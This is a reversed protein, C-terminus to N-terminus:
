YMTNGSLRNKPTITTNVASRIRSLDTGNIEDYLQTEEYLARLANNRQATTYNPNGKIDAYTQLYMNYADNSNSKNQTSLKEREWALQANALERQQALSANRYAQEALMQERQMALSSNRYSQNAREIEQQFEFGKNKFDKEWQRDELQRALASIADERDASMTALTGELNQALLAKQQEIDNLASTRERNINGIMRNNIQDAEALGSVAISSNSLGRGLMTNSLSNKAKKNALNQNAVSLDYNANIGGKQQDLTQQNQALQNKLAQVKKNYSVDYEQTAQQRYDTAM